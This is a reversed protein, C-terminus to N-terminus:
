WAEGTDVSGQPAASVQSGSLTPTSGDDKVPDISTVETRPAAQNVTTSNAIVTVAEDGFAGECAIGNHNADLRDPDVVANTRHALYFAQAAEQSDFDSCDKDDSVGVVPPSTETVVPAPTTTTSAATGTCLRTRVNKVDLNLLANARDLDSGAAAITTPDGGQNAKNLADIAVNVNARDAIVTLNRNIADTCESSTPAPPDTTVASAVGGTLSLALAIGAGVGAIRHTRSLM